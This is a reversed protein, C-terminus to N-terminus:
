KIEVYNGRSTINLWYYGEDDPITGTINFDLRRYLTANLGAVNLSISLTKNTIITRTVSKPINIYVQTRAGNGQQYTLQSSRAIDNLTDQVKTIRFRENSSALLDFNMITIIMLIGLTVTFVVILETAAQALKYKVM